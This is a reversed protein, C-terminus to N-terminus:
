FLSVVPHFLVRCSGQSLLIACGGGDVAKIEVMGIAWLWSGCSLWRFGEKDEVQRALRGEWGASDTPRGMWM